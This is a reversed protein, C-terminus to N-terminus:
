IKKIRGSRSLGRPAISFYIQPFAQILFGNGFSFPRKQPPSDPPCTLRKAFICFKSVNVVYVEKFLAQLSIYKRYVARLAYLENGVFVVSPTIKSYPVPAPYWFTLSSRNLVFVNPIKPSIVTPSNYKTPVITANNSNARAIHKSVLLGIDVFSFYLYLTLSAEIKLFIIFDFGM